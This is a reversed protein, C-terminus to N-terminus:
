ERTMLETMLIQPMFTTAVAIMEPETGFSPTLLQGNRICFKLVKWQLAYTRKNGVGQTEEEAQPAKTIKLNRNLPLIM